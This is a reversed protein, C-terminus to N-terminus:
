TYPTAEYPANAFNHFVVKLKTMDTQGDARGDTQREARGCPVVQTGSFPDEHFKSYTELSQRSFEVKM